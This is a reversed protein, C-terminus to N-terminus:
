FSPTSLGTGAVISVTEERRGGAFASYSYLQIRVKLDGSLVETLVRSRLPGEALLEEELVVIYIEDEDTGGGYLVGINPDVIVPLGAIVGAFGQDQTGATQYLGGQQLIPFKDGLFSAIWASRRPHMVIANAMFGPANTAVDAIAQYIKPLLEGADSGTFSVPNADGLTRIGVHQGNNGTGALLQRDLESDYARLLDRLIVEDLGPRSREFAQMSIDNQGAITRIKVDYTDTDIDTSQVGTTEGDQAVVETGSIVKPFNMTMGDAELAIKGVKDAFPRGPRALEIWRDGLYIPPIFGAANGDTTVEARLDAAMPGKASILEVAMEQQHRALRQTAGPDNRAHVLDRFFSHQGGKRYTLPEELSVRGLGGTGAEAGNNDTSAPAIARKAAVMADLREVQDVWRDAEAKATNFATALFEKEEDTSNEPLAQIRADWDAMKDCADAHRQRAEDLQTVTNM